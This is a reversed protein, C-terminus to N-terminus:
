LTPSDEAHGTLAWKMAAAMRQEMRKQQQKEKEALERNLRDVEGQLAALGDCRARVKVNEAKLRDVEAHAHELSKDREALLGRLDALEREKGELATRLAEDEQHKAALREALVRDISSFVDMVQSASYGAPVEALSGTAPLESPTSLSGAVPPSGPETRIEKNPERHPSPESRKRTKFPRAPSSEAPNKKRVNLLRRPARDRDNGSPASKGDVADDDEFSSSSSSEVPQDRKSTVAKAQKAHVEVAVDEPGRKSAVAKAQVEFTTRQALFATVIDYEILRHTPTSRSKTDAHSVVTVVDGRQYTSLASSRWKIDARSDAVTSTELDLPQNVWLQFTSRSNVLPDWTV